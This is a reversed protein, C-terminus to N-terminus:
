WDSNEGTHNNDMWVLALKLCDVQVWHEFLSDTSAVLRVIADLSPLDFIHALVFTWSATPPWKASISSWGAVRIKPTKPSSSGFCRSPIWWPNSRQTPGQFYLFIGCNGSHGRPRRITNPVPRSAFKCFCLLFRSIMQLCNFSFVWSCVHWSFCTMKMPAFFLGPVHLTVESQQSNASLNGTPVAIAQHLFYLTSGSQRHTVEINGNTRVSLNMIIINLTNQYTWWKTLGGDVCWRCKHLMEEMLPLMSGTVFFRLLTEEWWWARWQWWGSVLAATIGPWRRRAPNALFGLRIPSTVKPQLSCRSMGVNGMREMVTSTAVLSVYVQSYCFSARFLFLCSIGFEFSISFLVECRLM